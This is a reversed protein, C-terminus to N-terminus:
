DITAFGDCKQFADLFKYLAGRPHQQFYLVRISICVEKLLLGDVAYSVWEFRLGKSELSDSKQGGDSAYKWNREDSM